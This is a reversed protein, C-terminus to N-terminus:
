TIPLNRLWGLNSGFLDRVDKVGYRLMVLRDVGLGWALVPNKVGLPITVEPRFVGMGGLEMWKKSQEHFVVTQMSPETYPFYSPWFKVKRFGLRSYFKAIVGMLTRVNLNRELMVGDVQHFEPNNKYSPKENRFVKSVTFVRADSPKKEALYKITISTTHTRLIVRRAENENWAYRWGLSGTEGGSEHVAKVRVVEDRYKELNALVSSVYYTDQLDRAPHKQPIFLADFNWFSSQVYSGDIEEFGMSVFVERVEDMLIRLPHRRGPFIKPAPSTVDIERLPKQKWAGSALIEATIEGITEIKTERIAQAGSETLRILIQKRRNSQLFNPRQELSKLVRLESSSISKESISRESGIKEILEEEPEKQSANETLAIENGTIKVWGNQRSRGLAPSFSSKDLNSALESLTARGGAAELAKVLRREPLGAELAKVGNEGLSYFTEAVERTQILEKAKSWEVARRAQDIGMGAKAALSDIDIWEDDTPPNESLAILL